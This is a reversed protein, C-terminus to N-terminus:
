GSPELTFPPIQVLRGNPDITIDPNSVKWAGVDFEEWFMKGVFLALDKGPCVRNSRGDNVSNDIASEAFGQSKEEYEKLPRVRFETDAGKGWVKPDKQAVNLALITRHGGMWQNVQPFGTQPDVPSKPCAATEGESGNLALTEEATLGICVPRSLEWHPFGYVPPIYRICEWFFDLEKGNPIKYGPSPNTSSTSYMIALGSMLGGPVSLGGASYLADWLGSALQLSCNPTPSCDEDKLEEGWIEEVLGLYERVHEVIGQQTSQFGLFGGAIGYLSPPVAQSITGLRVVNNQVEVFAQAKAFDIQKGFVIQYNVMYTWAQLDNPVELKGAKARERLFRRLSKSIWDTEAPLAFIREFPKRIVSHQKSTAGLANTQPWLEFGNWFYPNNMIGGLENGRWWEGSYTKNPMKKSENVITEYDFVISLNVDSPVTSAVSILFYGLPITNAGLPILNLSTSFSSGCAECNDARDPSFINLCATLYCFPTRILLSLMGPLVLSVLVLLIVLLCCCCGCSVYGCIQICGPTQVSEPAPQKTEPQTTGSGKEVDNQGSTDLLPTKEPLSKQGTISSPETM